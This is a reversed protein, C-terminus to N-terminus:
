SCFGFDLELVDVEGEGRRFEAKNLVENWKDFHHSKVRVVADLLERLSFGPRLVINNEFPLRIPLMDAGRPDNNYEGLLNCVRLPRTLFVRTHEPDELHRILKAAATYSPACRPEFLRSDEPSWWAGLTHVTLEYRLEEPAVTEIPDTVVTIEHGTEPLARTALQYRLESPIAAIGDRAAQYGLTRDWPYYRRRYTVGRLESEALLISTLTDLFVKLRASDLARLDLDM